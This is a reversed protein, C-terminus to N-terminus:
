VVDDKKQPPSQIEIKEKQIKYIVRPSRKYFPFGEFYNNRNKCPLLTTQIREEDGEMELYTDFFTISIQDFTLTDGESIQLRKETVPTDNLCVKYSVEGKIVVDNKDILVQISLDHIRIDTHCIENQDAIWIKEKREYCRM